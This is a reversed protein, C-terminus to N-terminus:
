FQTFFRWTLGPLYSLLETHRGDFAIWEVPHGASCNKFDTVTHAGSGKAPAPPTQMTCGNNRVFRDALALGGSYSLTPDSIGHSALYAIPLTGGSCGSLLGASYAAVARFVTARSCALGYTMAAGYSFGASFIRTTDVCLGAEFQNLMADVFAVDRGNSNAWGNSIGQPAVFITTDKSLDQLGYYPRGSRGTAVDTATGGLWHFAFVLRYPHNRDYNGPLTLIYSRNTGGSLITHTGSSLGPAKGCGTTSAAPAAQSAAASAPVTTMTAAATLAALTAAILLTARRCLSHSPARTDSTSIHPGFKM